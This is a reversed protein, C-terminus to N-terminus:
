PHPDFFSIIVLRREPMLAVIGCERGIAYPSVVVLWDVLGSSELLSTAREAVVDVPECPRANIEDTVRQQLAAVAAVAVDVEQEAVALGLRACTEEDGPYVSIGGVQSICAVLEPVTTSSSSAFPGSAWVDRCGEIPDAGYELM